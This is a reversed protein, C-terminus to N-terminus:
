ERVSGNTQTITHASMQACDFDNRHSFGNGNRTIRILYALVVLVIIVYYSQIIHKIQVISECECVCACM